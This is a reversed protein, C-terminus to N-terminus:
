IKKSSTFYYKDDIKEVHVRLGMTLESEPLRGICVLKPQRLHHHNKDLGNQNSIELEILALILPSNFGKPPAFLVTYTLIRGTDTIQLPTTHKLCAPCRDAPPLLVQGCSCAAAELNGM